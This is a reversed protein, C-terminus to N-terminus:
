RMSKQPGGAARAASRRIANGGKEGSACRHAKVASSDILVEAPPGGAAALAHFIELRGASSAIRFRRARVTAAVCDLLRNERQRDLEPSPVSCFISAMDRCVAFVISWIGAASGKSAVVTTSGAAALSQHHSRPLFRPLPPHRVGTLQRNYGSHHCRKALRILHHSVRGRRVSRSRHTRNSRHTSISHQRCGSHLTPEANCCFRRLRCLKPM